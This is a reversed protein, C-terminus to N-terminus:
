VAGGRVNGMAEAELVQKVLEMDLMYKGKPTLQFAPFRGDKIGKRVLYTSLGVLKGAEEIGVLKNLM